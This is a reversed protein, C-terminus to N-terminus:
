RKSPEALENEVLSHINFDSSLTALEEKSPSTADIWIIDRYKFQRIMYSIIDQRDTYWM